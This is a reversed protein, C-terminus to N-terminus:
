LVVFLSMRSEVAREAFALLQRHFRAVAPQDATRYSRLFDIVFQLQDTEVECAQRSQIDTGCIRNIDNILPFCVALQERTLPIRDINLALEVDNAQLRVLAMSDQPLLVGLGFVESPLM